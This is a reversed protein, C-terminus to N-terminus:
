LISITCSSDSLIKVNIKAAKKQRKVIINQVKTCNTASACHKSSFSPFNFYYVFFSLLVIFRYNKCVPVPLSIKYWAQIKSKSPVSAFVSFEM